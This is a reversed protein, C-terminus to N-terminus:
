ENGAPAARFSQATLQGVLLPSPSDPPLRARAARGRCTPLLGSGPSPEEGGATFIQSKEVGAWRAVSTSVVAPSSSYLTVLSEVPNKAERLFLGKCRCLPSQTWASLIFNQELGGAENRLMM